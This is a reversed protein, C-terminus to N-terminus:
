SEATLLSNLQFFLVVKTHVVSINTENLLRSIHLNM